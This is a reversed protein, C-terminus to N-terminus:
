VCKAAPTHSKNRGRGDVTIDQSHECSRVSGEGGPLQRLVDRM